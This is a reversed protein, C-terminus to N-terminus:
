PFFQEWRQNGQRTLTRYMYTGYNTAESIEASSLVLSFFLKKLFMIEEEKMEVIISM